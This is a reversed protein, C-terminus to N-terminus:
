PLFREIQRRERKTPRGTGKPRSLVQEVVTRRAREFEEPPTRDDLLTGVLKPGVRRDSIGVVRVTRTPGATTVVYEEGVRVPRGPKVAHGELKVHGARCAALAHSRTKFVRAAWLWKDIRVDASPELVECATWEARTALRYQAALADTV